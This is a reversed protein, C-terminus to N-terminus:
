QETARLARMIASLSFGRRQLFGITRRKERDSAISFSFGSFRRDVIARVEETEDREGLVRGLVESVLEPQLGRRRMEQRLRPGYYRGSALASEAFREAFRRDDVWGESVMRGLAAEVDTDDYGRGRLKDRLRAATYDRATLIRLAYLYAQEPTSPESSRLPLRNRNWLRIKM